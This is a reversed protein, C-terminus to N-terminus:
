LREQLVDSEEIDVIVPNVNTTKDETNIRGEILSILSKKDYPPKRFTLVYQDGYTDGYFEVLPEQAIGRIFNILAGAASSFSTDCLRRKQIEDDMLLKVIGWIGPANEEKIQPDYKYNTNKKIDKSTVDSLKQQ